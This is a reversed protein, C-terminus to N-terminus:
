WYCSGSRSTEVWFPSTNWSIRELTICRWSTAIGAFIMDTGGWPLEYEGLAIALQASIKYMEHCALMSVEDIFLYDVGELRTRVQAITTAKNRTGTLGAIPVGLFSHYTSGNLLAAATGTPGLIVFRHSENRLNFFQILAKIVQTKGTGGMGGVYQVLDILEGTV